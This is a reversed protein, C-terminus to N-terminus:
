HHNVLWLEVYEFSSNSLVTRYGYQPNSHSKLLKLIRNEYKLLMINIGYLKLTM